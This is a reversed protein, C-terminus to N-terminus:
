YQLDNSGVFAKTVYSAAVAEISVVAIRMAILSWLTESDGGSNISALM